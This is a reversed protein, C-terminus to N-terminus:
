PLPETASASTPMLPHPVQVHTFMSAALAESTRELLVGLRMLFQDLAARAGDEGTVALESVRAARLLTVAEEVRQRVPDNAPVPLDAAHRQLCALQFAVSRPHADDLLLLHLAVDARARGALLSDSAALVAEILATAGDAPVRVCTARLLALTLWARELRRGLDLFAWSVDRRMGEQLQGSLAFVHVLALDLLAESGPSAQAPVSRFVAHLGDVLRWTDAALRDRLGYAARHLAHVTFAVTGARGADCLLAGLEARPDALREDSGEGVFGPYTTTVQTLARLLQTLVADTAPVGGQAEAHRELVTRLLRATSETRELYRGFWFLDEAARSPLAARGGDASAPAASPLGHRKEAAALVWTDKGIAGLQNTVVLDDASAAVRTLGGPMVVHGGAGACLYGRLVGPRPLLSGDDALTPMTSPVVWEQAAFRQPRARMRAILAAREGTELLGAFLTRADEYRGNRDVPKIVMRDLNAIVHDLAAPDGCWWSAVAPLALPRGLLHAALAPLFAQMAPSELIGCGLPNVVAVQGRRVVEVLGPIGLRSDERLELPDCFVDDVRRWLVDVPELGGLSKLWLRGESVVLDAGQALTCGLHEALLMHEFWAENHPGPTLLVVRPNGAGDRPSSAFLAERLSDFFPLLREVQADRYAGAFVRSAVLRNELAYGAGSPAQTRDGLVQWRGDPTRVLDAAYLMLARDGPPRIGDVARLFGSHGYVFEPPLLGARILERPGYLDKLILDLLEARQTLGQGIAVWEAADVVLPVPDLPWPRPMGQPDAYVNFTAGSERLRQRTEGARQRRGDADLA